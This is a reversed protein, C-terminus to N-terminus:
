QHTVFGPPLVRRIEHHGSRCCRGRLFGGLCYVQGQLSRLDETCISARLGGESMTLCIVTLPRSLGCFLLEQRSSGACPKCQGPVRTVWFKEM